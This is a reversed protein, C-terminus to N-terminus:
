FFFQLNVFTATRYYWAGILRINGEDNL